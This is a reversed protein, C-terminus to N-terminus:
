YCEGISILLVAFQKKKENMIHALVTQYRTIHNDKVKYIRLLFRVIIPVVTTKLLCM